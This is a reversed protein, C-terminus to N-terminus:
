RKTMSQGIYRGEILQHAAAQELYWGWLSSFYNTCSIVYKQAYNLYLQLLSRKTCNGLWKRMCYYVWIVSLLM